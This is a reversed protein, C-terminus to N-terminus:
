ETLSMAANKNTVDSHELSLQSIPLMPTIVILRVLCNTTDRIRIGKLVDYIPCKYKDRCRLYTRKKMIYHLRLM